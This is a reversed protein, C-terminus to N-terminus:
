TRTLINTIGFVQGGKKYYYVRCAVTSIMDISEVQARKDKM